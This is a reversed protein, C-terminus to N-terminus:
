SHGKPRAVPRWKRPSWFDNRWVVWNVVIAAGVNYAFLATRMLVSRIGERM